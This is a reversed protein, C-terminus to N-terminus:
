GRPAVTRFLDLPSALVNKEVLTLVLLTLLWLTVFTVLKWAGVTERLRWWEEGTPDDAM